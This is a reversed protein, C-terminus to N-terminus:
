PRRAARGARRGLPWAPDAKRWVAQRLALSLNPASPAGPFATDGALARSHDEMVVTLWPRVPKGDAGPVMVDPMTHDAQWPANPHPARHRHIM